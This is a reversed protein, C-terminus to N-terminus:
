KPDFLARLRDFEAPTLLLEDMVAGLPRAAVPGPAERSSYSRVISNATLFRTPYADGRKLCWEWLPKAQQFLFAHASREPPAGTPTEHPLWGALPAPKEHFTCYWRVASLASLVNGLRALQVDFARGVPGARERLAVLEAVPPSQELHRLQIKAGECMVYGAVACRRAAAGAEYWATHTDDWHRVRPGEAGLADIWTRLVLPHLEKERDDCLLNLWVHASRAAYRLATVASRRVEPNGSELATVLANKLESHWATLASDGYTDLGRIAAIRVADPQAPDAIVEIMVRANWHALREAVIVRDPVSGTKLVEALQSGFVDAESLESVATLAKQRVPDDGDKLLREVAGSVSTRWSSSRTGGPPREGADQKPAVPQNALLVDIAAARVKPDPDDALRAALDLKEERSLLRKRLEDRRQPLEPDDAAAARRFQRIAWEDRLEDRFLYAAGGALGVLLLLAIVVRHGRRSRPPPEVESTM